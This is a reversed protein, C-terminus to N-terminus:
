FHDQRIVDVDSVYVIGIRGSLVEYISDLMPELRASDTLCIVLVMSGAESIQGMDWVGEHGRGCTASLVTYGTAGLQDLLDLLPGRLPAEVIIELKKKHHTEM